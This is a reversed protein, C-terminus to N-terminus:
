SRVIDGGLYLTSTDKENMFISRVVLDVVSGSKLKLEDFESPDLTLQFFKKCFMGEARGDLLQVKKIAAGADPHDKGRQGDIVGTVVLGTIKM